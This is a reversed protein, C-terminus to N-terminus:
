QKDRWRRDFCIRNGAHKKHDYLKTFIELYSIIEMTSAERLSRSLDPYLRLKKMMHKHDYGNVSIMFKCARVFNRKAAGRPHFEGIDNIKQARYVSSTYMNETFNLDGNRFKKIGPGGSTVGQCIELAVTIPFNFKKLFKNFLYYPLYESEGRTYRSLFSHLYDLDCWNKQNVNLTIVDNVDYKPFIMFYIPLGLGKAALFRHQGDIIKLSENVKIIPFKYGNDKYSQKLQNVLSKNIDRNEPMFSFFGYCKTAFICTYSRSTEDCRLCNMDLFKVLPYTGNEGSIKARLMEPTLEEQRGILDANKLKAM